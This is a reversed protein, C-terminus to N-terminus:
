KQFLRYSQNALIELSQRRRSSVGIYGKNRRMEREVEDLGPNRGLLEYLDERTGIEINALYL